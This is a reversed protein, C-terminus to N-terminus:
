GSGAARNYIPHVDLLLDHVPEAVETPDGIIAQQRVEDTQMQKRPIM